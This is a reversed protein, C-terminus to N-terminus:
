KFGVLRITKPDVYVFLGRSRMKADKIRNMKSQFQMPVIIDVEDFYRYKGKEIMKLTASESPEGGYYLEGYLSVLFTDTSDMQHEHITKLYKHDYRTGDSLTEDLKTTEVLIKKEVGWEFNYGELFEIEPDSANIVMRRFHEYNQMSKYPKVIVTDITVQQAVTVFSCLMTFLLLLSKM